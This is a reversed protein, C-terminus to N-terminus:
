FAPRAFRRGLIKQRSFKKFFFSLLAFPNKTYQKYALLPRLFAGLFCHYFSDDRSNRFDAPAEAKVSEIVFSVM